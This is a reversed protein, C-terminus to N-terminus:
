AAQLRVDTCHEMLAVERLEDVVACREVADVVGHLDCTDTLAADGAVLNRRNLHTKHLRGIIAVDTRAPCTLLTESCIRENQGLLAPLRYCLHGHVILEGCKYVASGCPVLRYREVTVVMVSRHVTVVAAIDLEGDSGVVPHIYCLIFVVAYLVDILDETICHLNQTSDVFRGFDVLLLLPEVQWLYLGCCGVALVYLFHVNDVECLEHAPIEALAAM